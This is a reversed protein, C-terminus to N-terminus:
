RGGRKPPDYDPILGAALVGAGSAIFGAPPYILVLGTVVLGLGLACVLAALLKRRTV